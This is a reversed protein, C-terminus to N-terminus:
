SNCYNLIQQNTIYTLHLSVLQIHDLHRTKAFLGTGDVYQNHNGPSIERQFRQPTESININQDLNVLYNLVKLIKLFNFLGFVL